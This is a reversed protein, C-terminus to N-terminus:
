PQIVSAAAQAVENVRNLDERLEVIKANHGNAVSEAARSASASADIKKEIGELQQKREEKSAVVARVAYGAREKAASTEAQIIKLKADLDDKRKQQDIEAAKQMKKIWLPILCTSVLMIAAAAAQIIEVWNM